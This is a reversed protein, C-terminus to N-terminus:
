LASAKRKKNKKQGHSVDWKSIFVLFLQAKELGSVSKQAFRVVAQTETGEKCQSSSLESNTKLNVDQQHM